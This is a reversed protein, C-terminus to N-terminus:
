LLPSLESDFSILDAYTLVSLPKKLQIVNGNLHGSIVSGTDTVWYKNQSCLMFFPNSVFIFWNNKNNLNSNTVTKSM